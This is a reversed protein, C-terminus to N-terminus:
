LDQGEEDDYLDAPNTTALAHEASSSVAEFGTPIALTNGATGPAVFRSTLIQENKQIDVSAVEGKIEQLSGIAGDVRALLPVKITNIM